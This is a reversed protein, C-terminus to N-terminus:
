RVRVTARRAALLPALSRAARARVQADMYRGLTFLLLVMTETDFYVQPAGRLVQIASWGYAALAGIAVLVDASPRRERLARWARGLFPGGLLLTLPTALMWLVVDVGHIVWADAAAFAHVYLLLSLLRLNTASAM